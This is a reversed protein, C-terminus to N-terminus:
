IIDDIRRRRLLILIAACLGFSALYSALPLKPFLVLDFLGWAGRWFAVAATGLLLTNILRKTRVRSLNRVPKVKKKIAGM